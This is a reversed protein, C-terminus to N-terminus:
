VDISDATSDLSEVRQHQSTPSRRDLQEMNVIVSDVRPTRPEKQKRRVHSSKHIKSLEQVIDRMSPRKKAAPNVCKHALAAVENLEEVDVRGDLRPDALEEWGVKGDTNMAALEVYEMLGQLPNRAAILEFLLVGYSYVDSKKTFSRTSIYEPDLYGFTGQINSVKKNVMEERSLGFDAVRARMSHDLLINSSKIDRHIVSPVAGDHLYELGRAVDLAIQVRLEWSLPQLIENYLHSALSGRGLLMVETHFEKEGQKSDTALVKVAVTEEASMQAKYVPGYAGKGILTTFNYTAKQLDKYSYELIGTATVLNVKKLGRLWLPMSSPMVSKPSETGLSSDTACSDVGNARIPITANRRSSSNGIQSNKRHYKFCFFATVALVVGIVVGISLGIILGSSEGEM